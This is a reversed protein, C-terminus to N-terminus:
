KKLFNEPGRGEKWKAMGLDVLLCAMEKADKDIQEKLAKFAAIDLARKEENTPPQIQGERALWAAFAIISSGIGFLLKFTVDVVPNKSVIIQENM